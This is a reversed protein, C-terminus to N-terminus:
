APNQGDVTASNAGGKFWVGGQFRPSEKLLRKSVNQEQLDRCGLCSIRFKLSM